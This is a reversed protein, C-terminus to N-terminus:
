HGSSQPDSSITRDSKPRRRLWPDFGAIQWTTRERHADGDTNSPVTGASPCGWNFQAPREGRSIMSGSRVKWQYFGSTGVSGNRLLAHGDRTDNKDRYRSIGACRGRISVPRLDFRRPDRTQGVSLGVERRGRRARRVTMGIKRTDPVHAAHDVEVIQGVAEFGTIHLQRRPRSRNLFLAPVTIM